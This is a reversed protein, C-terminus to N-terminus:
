RAFRVVTEVHYTQPFLDLPRVSELRYGAATLLRADRGLSAPDCSVYVVSSAGSHSLLEVLRRGLGARPPDVVVSDWTGPHLSLEEDVGAEVVEVAGGTNHRLDAAALRESEVATVREFRRGVTAAFLGGGAYGDLLHGSADPLADDVLEVLREAGLTNVQFFARGTIRFTVGAVVEHIYGGDGVVVPIGWGAAEPPPEGTVYAAAEGTGVGARLTLREVGGLDGLRSLADALREVVLLCAGIPVLRHSRRERLAPRGAMVGLDIRNRYGFPPGAVEVEEVRPTDLGGLHVLQSRVVDRKWELQAAYSLHQWQCGGCDGAHPCPAAVRHPSPELLNLLRGRAWRPHDETLEAEVLDGPVGGAVFVTRGDELRGVAEGGFAMGHLRIM